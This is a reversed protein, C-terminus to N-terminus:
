TLKTPNRGASSGCTVIRMEMSSTRESASSRKPPVTEAGTNRSRAGRITSSSPMWAGTPEVPQGSHGGRAGHALPKRESREGVREARADARDTVGAGSDDADGVVGPEDLRPHEEGTQAAGVVVAVGVGGGGHGGARRREEDVVLDGEVHRLDHDVVGTPRETRDGGQDVARRARASVITPMVPVFPLVM